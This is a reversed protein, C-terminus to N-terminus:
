LPRPPRCTQLTPAGGQVQGCGEAGARRWCRPRLVTGTVPSHLHRPSGGNRGPRSCLLARPQLFCCQGREPTRVPCCTQSEGPLAPLRPLEPPRFPPGPTAPRRLSSLMLEGGGMRSEERSWPSTNRSHAGSISSCPLSPGQTCAACEHQACDPAPLSLLRVRGRIDTPQNWQQNASLPTYPAPPAAPLARTDSLTLFLSFLFLPGHMHCSSICSSLPFVPLSVHHRRCPGPCSAFLSALAVRVPGPIPTELAVSRRAVRGPCEM